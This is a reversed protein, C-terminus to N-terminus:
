NKEAIFISASVILSAPVTLAASAMLASSVMLAASKAIGMSVSSADVVLGICIPRPFFRYISSVSNYDAPRNSNTRALAQLELSNKTRVEFKSFQRVTVSGCATSIGMPAGITMTFPIRNSADAVDMARIEMTPRAKGPVCCPAIALRSTRSIRQGLAMRTAKKIKTM